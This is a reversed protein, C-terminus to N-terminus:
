ILGHGNTFYKHQGYKQGCNFDCEVLVGRVPGLESLMVVIHFLRRCMLYWPDKREVSSADSAQRRKQDEPVDHLVDPGPSPGAFGWLWTFVEVEDPAGASASQNGNHESKEPHYELQQQNASPCVTSSHM